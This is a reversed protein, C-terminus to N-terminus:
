PRRGWVSWLMGSPTMFNSDDLRALDEDFQRPTIYNGDIMTTRLQEYNAKLMSAGSSGRQFMFMRGEAGVDTLRHARLRGFLLRGYRRNVGGDEFLKMMALHTKLLVEGPSTKPDPPMSASDYEEIVLWGGPRVASIMSELAQERHPVHLLVLRAHVLDFVAEPLPDTAIDHRRVEINSGGLMALFRPDIDTALVHGTPRVRDALWTAISGGGGGIELCQWGRSVGCRELHRITGGDFLKSLAAFRSPTEKGSNALLYNGNALGSKVAQSRNTDHEARHTSWRAYETKAVAPQRGM